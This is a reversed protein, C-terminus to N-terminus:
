IKFKLFYFNGYFLNIRTEKRPYTSTGIISCGQFWSCVNPPFEVGLHKETEGVKEAVTWRQVGHRTDDRACSLRRMERGCGVAGDRAADRQEQFGRTKAATKMREGPAAAFPPV